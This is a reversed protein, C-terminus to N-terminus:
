DSGFTKDQCKQCLGSISYESRSLADKFKVAPRGCWACVDARISDQRSRGSPNIATLLNEIAESKRTPEAM